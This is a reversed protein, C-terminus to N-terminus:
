LILIDDKKFINKVHDFKHIQLYKANKYVKHLM